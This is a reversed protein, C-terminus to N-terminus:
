ALLDKEVELQEVRKGHGRAQDELV